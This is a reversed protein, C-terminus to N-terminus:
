YRYRVGWNMTWGYFEQSTPFGRLISSKDPQNTFNNVNLFLEFGRTIEQKLSVDWRTYSETFGDEEIRAGISSLSKGQFLMSVRGSFGDLDYGISLNAIHKPQNPITSVRFTDVGVFAFPPTTEREVVFSPFQTDSFIRTYNANIVIGNFPRPLFSFNTQWEIEYGKVETDFVNNIPELLTYGLTYSPLNESEPELVIKERIYVLDELEKYFGGITFLGFRSEYISLHADYNTSKTPLLDPNGRGAFRSGVDVSERPSIFSFEPRALSETRSLRLDLWDTFRYRIQVMPFWLGYEAQSTTDRVQGENLNGSLRGVKADYATSTFEYRVGPLLTLKGGLNVEAMAYGAYIDENSKFDELDATPVRDYDSQHTEYMQSLLRRNLVADIVYDGDLFTGVDPDPDAYNEIGIYGQSTLDLQGLTSGNGNALQQVAAPNDWRKSMTSEDQLREKGRYKGGLKLVGDSIGGSFLPLSLDLQAKLDRERGRLTNFDNQYLFTENLQDKAALPIALPGAQEDLADSDFAALEHFRVLHDYPHERVAISRSLRWDVNVLSINHSGALANSLISVSIDRDRLNYRTRFNGVSYDKQRQIEDRSLYGFFNSSRISGRPLRYDLMMSSGFRERTELRDVLTLQGISIPAFAEGENADRAVFYSASFVDSSRDVRQVSGTFLMGLKDGLFRNSVSLSGRYQELSAQQNNYGNEVKFSSQFEAPAEKLTFNVAGGIADADRDPTLAKYVEIGELIDPSIMNLDVSRDDFDTAPLRDGDVTISNYKPALGRIVVKQGEGADRVVSIGPLRGVSEAANQDPLEQIRAASVINAITNSALQQNIAATQGAVQAYVTIEGVGVAGFNLEVNLQVTEGAEVTVSQEQTDYGIFSFILTYEGEQIFLRYSGDSGTALGFTTGAILVNTGPLPLGTERDIVKGEITGRLQAYADHPGM